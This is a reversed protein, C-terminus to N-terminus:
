GNTAGLRELLAGAVATLEVQLSDLKSLVSPLDTEANLAKPFDENRRVMEALRLFGLLCSLPHCFCLTEALLVERKARYRREFLRPFLREKAPNGRAAIQSFSFSCVM